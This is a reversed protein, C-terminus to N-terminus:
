GRGRIVFPPRKGFPEFQDILQLQWRESSRVLEEADALWQRSSSTRNFFHPRDGLTNLSMALDISNSVIIRGYPGIFSQNALDLQSTLRDVGRQNPLVRDSVYLGIYLRLKCVVRYVTEALVWEEVLRNYEQERRRERNQHLPVLVAALAAGVTGVATFVEWWKAGYVTGTTLFGLVITSFLTTGVFWQIESQHTAAAGSLWAVVKM